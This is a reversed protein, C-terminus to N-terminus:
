NALLSGPFSFGKAKLEWWYGSQAQYNIQHKKSRAIESIEGLHKLLLNKFHIAPSGGKANLSKAQSYLAELVETTIEDPLILGSSVICIKKDLDNM